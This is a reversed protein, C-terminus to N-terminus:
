QVVKWPVNTTTTSGDGQPSPASQVAGGGRAQQELIAYGNRLHTKYEDLADNYDKLTQAENLRVLAAEAKEGEMDTIAGGGKLAQRAQLFAGGRLQNIKSQVRQSDPTVNPLMSTKPGLMNPLYKDNQLDEVQKIATDTALKAAPLAYQAEGQATGGAKQAAEGAVDKNIYDVPAGSRKDRVQFGTGLDLTQIGTAITSGEPLEIRKTTGNKSPQYAVTKGNEVTYIPTGYYENDDGGMGAPAQIWEGTGKNYLNKGVAMLGQEKQTAQWMQLAQAGGGSQALEVLSPDAKQAKLWNATANQVLQDKQLKKRAELGHGAYAFGQGLNAGFNGPQMLAGALPLAITPDNLVGLRGSFLGGQQPQSMSTQAQPPQQGGGLGLFDLLGAM